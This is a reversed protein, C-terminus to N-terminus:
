TRLNKCARLTLVEARATSVSAIQIRGVPKRSFSWSGAVQASLRVDKTWEVAPCTLAALGGTAERHASPWPGELLCYPFLARSACDTWWLPGVLQVQFFPPLFGMKAGYRLRTRNQKKKEETDMEQTQKGTSEFSLQSIYHVSQGRWVGVSLMGWM